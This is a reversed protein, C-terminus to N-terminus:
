NPRNQIREESLDTMKRPKLVHSPNADYSEHTTKGVSGVPGDNPRKVLLGM